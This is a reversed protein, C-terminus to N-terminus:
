QPQDETPSDTVLLERAIQEAATLRIMGVSRDDWHLSEDMRVEIVRYILNVLADFQENTM